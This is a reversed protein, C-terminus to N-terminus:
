LFFSIAFCSRDILKISKHVQLMDPISKANEVDEPELLDGVSM